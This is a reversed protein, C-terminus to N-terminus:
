PGLHVGPIQEPPPPPLRVVDVAVGSISTLGLLHDAEQRSRAFMLLDGTRTFKASLREGTVALAAEEVAWPLFAAMPEGDRRRCRLLIESM